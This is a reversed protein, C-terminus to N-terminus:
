AELKNLYSAAQLSTCLNGLDADRPRQAQVLGIAARVLDANDRAQQGDPLMTIDELGTRIGHGRELARQNVKSSYNADNLSKAIRCENL